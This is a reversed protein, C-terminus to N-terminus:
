INENLNRVDEKLEDRKRQVVNVQKNREKKRNELEKECKAKLFLYDLEETIANLEKDKKEIASHLRNECTYGIAEDSHFLASYTMINKNFYREFNSLDDLVADYRMKFFVGAVPTNLIIYCLLIIIGAVAVLNVFIAIVFHVVKGFGMMNQVTINPLFGVFFQFFVYIGVIIGIIVGVKESAWLRVIFYVICFALFGFLMSVVARVVMRIVVGGAGAVASSSPILFFLPSFGMMFLILLVVAIGGLFPYFIKSQYASGDRYQEFFDEISIIKSRYRKFDKLDFKESRIYGDTGKLSLIQEILKRESDGCKQPSAKNTELVFRIRGTIDSNKIKKNANLYEIVEQKKGEIVNSCGPRIKEMVHHVYEKKDRDYAAKEQLLQEKESLIEKERQEYYEDIAAEYHRKIEQQKREFISPDTYENLLFTVKSEGGNDLTKGICKSYLADQQRLRKEKDEKEIKVRNKLRLQNEHERKKEDLENELKVTGNIVGDINKMSAVFINHKTIYSELREEASTM